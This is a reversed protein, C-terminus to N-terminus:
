PSGNILPKAREELRAEAVARATDTTALRESLVKIDRQATDLLEKGTKHVEAIAEAKLARETALALEKIVADKTAKEGELQVELLATRATSHEAARQADVLSTELTAILLAAEDCRRELDETRSRLENQARGLIAAIEVSILAKLETSLLEVRATDNRQNQRRRWDNLHASITGMSGRGLEARVRRVTLQDMTSGDRLLQEAVKAVDDFSARVSM